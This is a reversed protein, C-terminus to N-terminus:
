AVEAEPIREASAILEGITGFSFRRLLDRLKGATTALGRYHRFRNVLGARIRPQGPDIEWPHVYVVVPMREVENLRRVAWRTVAGPYLRLYGGGGVPLVLRGLRVTSPPVELISRGGATRLRHIGRPAGPVGYRDHVVPFISSDYEFGAAALIDLAWLSDRTISFSAARYGRVPQRAGDELAHKAREVERRFEEPRQDYVLAHAWGHCAIEHGGAEIRRLLAPHREGVWGLVFFTAHTGTEAFLELLRETNAEVRSALSDWDQRAVVSSFASVQFHEEVDVTIANLCAPRADSV